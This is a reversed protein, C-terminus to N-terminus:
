HLPLLALGGSGQCASLGQCGPPQGLSTLAATSRTAGLRTVEAFAQAGRGTACTQGADQGVGHHSPTAAGLRMGVVPPTRISRSATARLPHWRGAKGIAM